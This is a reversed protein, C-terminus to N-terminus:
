TEYSDQPPRNGSRTLTLSFALTGLINKSPTWAREQLGNGTRINIGDTHSGSDKRM